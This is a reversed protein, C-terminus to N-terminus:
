VEKVFSEKPFRFQEGWVGKPDREGVSIVMVVRSGFGSGIVKRVRWEDFGEMPCSDFGQASVALMFNEAALAASKISVEDLDRGTVPRRTFPRFLGIGHVMLWKVPVLWRMGYLFPIAKGYYNKQERTGSGTSAIRDFLAKCHEKWLSRQSVVVVMEQATKAAGQSLCAEALRSKKETNKVWYFEWTQLNSSNPARQAAEFALDM